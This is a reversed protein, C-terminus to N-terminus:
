IGLLLENTRAGQALGGEVLLYRLNPQGVFSLCDSDITLIIYDTDDKFRVVAKSTASLSRSERATLINRHNRQARNTTEHLPLGSSSVREM